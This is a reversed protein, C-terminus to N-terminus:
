SSDESPIAASSTPLDVAVASKKLIALATQVNERTLGHEPVTQVFHAATSEDSAYARDDLIVYHTVEPHERLWAKIESARSEYEKDDACSRSFMSAESRGPTKGIVLSADVGQLHLVYAIYEEYHRWFTSLVIRAGSKELLLRFNAVLGSDLCIHNNTASKNLVGDIDLFCVSSM